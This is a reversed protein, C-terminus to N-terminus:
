INALVAVTARQWLDMVVCNWTLNIATQKVLILLAKRLKIQKLIDHVWVWIPEPPPFISRSGRYAKMTRIDHFTDVKCKIFRQSIFINTIQTSVGRVFWTISTHETFFSINRPHRLLAKKICSLSIQVFLVTNYQVQNV